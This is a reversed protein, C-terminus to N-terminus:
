PILASSPKMPEISPARGTLTGCAGYQIEPASSITRSSTSVFAPPLVFLGLTETLYKYFTFSFHHAITAQMMLEPLQMYCYPWWPFLHRSCALYRPLFFGIRDKQLKHPHRLCWVAAKVWCKGQAISRWCCPRTLRRKKERKRREKAILFSLCLTRATRCCLNCLTPWTWWIFIAYIRHKWM